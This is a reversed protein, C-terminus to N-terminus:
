RDVGGMREAHELAKWLRNFTSSFFGDFVQYRNGNRRVIVACRPGKIEYSCFGARRLGKRTKM